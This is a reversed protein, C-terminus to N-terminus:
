CWNKSWPSERAFKTIDCGSPHSSLGALETGSKRGLQNGILDLSTVGLPFAGFAEALEAGSKQDLRNEGLRLWTVSRLITRFAEALETGTRQGLGNSELNLTTVGLPIARFAAMLGNFSMNNLNQLRHHM